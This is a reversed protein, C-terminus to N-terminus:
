VDLVHTTGQQLEALAPYPMRARSCLMCQLRPVGHPACDDTGWDTAHLWDAECGHQLAEPLVGSGFMRDFYTSRSALIARHCYFRQREPRPLERDCSVCSGSSSGADSCSSSGCDSGDAEFGDEAFPAEAVLVIDAYRTDNFLAALHAPHGEDHMIVQRAHM